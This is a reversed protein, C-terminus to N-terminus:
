AHNNVESFLKHAKFSACAAEENLENCGVHWRAVRSGSRLAFETAVPNWSSDRDRSFYWHIRDLRTISPYVGVHTRSKNTTPWCSMPADKPLPWSTGPRLERVSVPETQPSLPDRAVAPPGIEPTVAFSRSRSNGYGINVYSSPFILRSKRRHATTPAMANRLGDAM